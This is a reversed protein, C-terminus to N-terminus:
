AGMRTELYEILYKAYNVVYQEGDFEFVADKGADKHLEYAAKLRKLKDPTYTITKDQESM